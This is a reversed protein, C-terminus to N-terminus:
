RDQSRGFYIRLSTYPLHARYNQFPTMSDRYNYYQYGFNWDVNRTLRFAARFEPTAFRMPYSGIINPNAISAIPASVRSGQGRDRSVRYSGYFSVRSSPRATVDFFGYNDRIFFQSFGFVYTGPAGSIPVVIPTYSTLHQHTFGTSIFFRPSAEWDLSGTFFRNKINTIFSANAPVLVGAQPDSPNEDDKTLASVHFSVKKYTLKNHFRFNIFDYNELRSFVNDAQGKEVNWFISWYKKPRLKMGAIVTHTTNTEQECIRHPNRTTGPPDCLFMPNTIAAPNNSSIINLNYGANDVMRHTYRYGIHLAVRNNFQYDGEVTNMYRKYAHRRHFVSTTLSSLTSGSAKTWREQFTEFGSVSFQDFSFTDSLRFDDGFLYTFGLDGRTQPRKAHSEATIVNSTVLIGTPNTNDRGTMLLRTNQDSSNAAYILRGTFDLRKSFTRHLNFVSFDVTGELPSTKEITDLRSQNTTTNGQSPSPLFFFPRDDYNRHGQLFGWDFGGLKGEAGFRFDISKAKFRANVAFEDSFFRETSFGDGKLDNFSVGMTFRIRENQPLATLDFDGFTHNTNQAHESNPLSIPNVFNFLNNFYKVRRVSGIFRYGGNKEMQVRTMGSPDAGWGSNNILLSDFYRGNGDRSELLLSSDFVRFGQRYNLDSRYKNVNGDLSRWRFGLETTSTVKYDGLMDVTESEPSPSPTQAGIAACGVLALALVGLRTAISRCHSSMKRSFM